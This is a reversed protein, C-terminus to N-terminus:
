RGAEVRDAGAHEVIEDQLEPVAQTRRDRHHGVLEGAYEGDAVVRNEEIRVGLRHDRLAVGSPQAVFARIGLDAVEEQPAFQAVHRILRLRLFLSAAFRIALFVLGLSMPPKTTPAITSAIAPTMAKPPPLNKVWRSCATRNKECDDSLPRSTPDGTVKRPTFIPATVRTTM